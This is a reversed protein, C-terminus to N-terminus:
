RSAPAACRRACARAAALGVHPQMSCIACRSRASAASTCACFISATPWSVPDIACSKLLRSPRSSRAADMQRAALAASASCARAHEVLREVGASRPLRSVSRSSTTRACRRAADGARDVHARQQQAHALPQRLRHAARMASSMSRPRRRRQDRDGVGVLELQRQEVQHDVRAVGHGAAARMTSRRRPASSSAASRRDPRRAVVHHQRDRSVPM